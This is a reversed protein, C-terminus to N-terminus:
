DNDYASLVFNDMDYLIGVATQMKDEADVAETLTETVPNDFNLEPYARKLKEKNSLSEDLPIDEEDSYFGPGDPDTYPAYRYDDGDPLEESRSEEHGFEEIFDPDFDLENKYTAYFGSPGLEHCEEYFDYMSKLARYGEDRCLENFENRDEALRHGTEYESQVLELVFERM